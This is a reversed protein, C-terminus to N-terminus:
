MKMTSALGINGRLTTMHPLRASIIAPSATRQCPAATFTERFDADSPLNARTVDFLQRATTIEGVPVKQATSFFLNEVTGGGGSGGILFRVTWCVLMPLALRIEADGFRRLIALILPRSADLSASKSGIM